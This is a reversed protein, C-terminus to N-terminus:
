GILRPSYLRTGPTGPSKGAPAGSNGSEGQGFFFPAM